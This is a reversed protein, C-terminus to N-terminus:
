FFFLGIVLLSLNGILALFTFNVNTQLKYSIITWIRSYVVRHENHQSFLLRIKESISDTSIYKNLFDLVAQYDDYIPANVMYFFFMGFFTIIPIIILVGSIIKKSM